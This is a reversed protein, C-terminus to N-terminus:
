WIGDMPGNCDPHGPNGSIGMTMWEVVDDHLMSPRPNGTTEILNTTPTVSLLVCFPVTPAFQAGRTPLIMMVLPGPVSTWVLSFCCSITFGLMWVTVCISSGAISFHFFLSLAWWDCFWCLIWHFWPLATISFAISVIQFNKPARKCDMNKCLM